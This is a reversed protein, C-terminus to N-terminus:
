RAGRVTECMLVTEGVRGNRLPVRKCALETPAMARVVLPRMEVEGPGRWVGAAAGFLIGAAFVMATVM